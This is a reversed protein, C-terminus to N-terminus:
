NARDKTRNLLELIRGFHFERALVLLGKGTEPYKRRIEKIIEETEAIDLNQAARGLREQQEPSLNDIMAATVTIRPEATRSELEEKYIYRVGLYKEMVSFVESSRFPKHVVEDCGAALIRRHQQRFASATLAVIPINKGPLARIRRTAEYGDLVPMRIDMWIFHPHWQQFMVVAEEGNVAEQVSFGVQTLLTTLLLRNDPNDEVILIRQEPQGEALRIVEPDWTQATTM